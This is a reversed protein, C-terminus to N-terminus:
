LYVVESLITDKLENRISGQRVLDVKMGLLEELFIELEIFKLLGPVEYFEVLIDIDSGKKLEKRVCSGFIGIRKVKFKEKLEDRHISLKEKIDEIKKAM